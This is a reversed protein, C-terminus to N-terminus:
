LNLYQNLQNLANKGALVVKFYHFIKCGYMEMSKKEYAVFPIPANIYEDFKISSQEVSITKTEDDYNIEIAALNEAVFRIPVYVHGNYNIVSYENSLTTPKGNFNFNASSLFDQIPSSGYAVTSLSVILGIIFGIILKRM